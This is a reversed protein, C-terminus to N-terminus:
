DTTREKMGTVSSGIFESDSDQKVRIWVKM